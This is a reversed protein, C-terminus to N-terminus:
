ENRQAASRRAAVAVVTRLHSACTLLVACHGVLEERSIMGREFLDVTGTVADRLQRARDIVYAAAYDGIEKPEDKEEGTSERRDEAFISEIIKDITRAAPVREGREIRVLHSASVGAEAAVRAQQKGAAVRLLRLDRGDIRM